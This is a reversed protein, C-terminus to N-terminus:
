FMLTHTYDCILTHGWIVHPIIEDIYVFGEPLKETKQEAFCILAFLNILLILPVVRKVIHMKM